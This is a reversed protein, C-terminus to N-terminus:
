WVPAPVAKWQSSHREQAERMKEQAKQAEKMLKQINM